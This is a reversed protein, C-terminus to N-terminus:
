FGKELKQRYIGARELPTELIEAESTLHAIRGLETNDGTSAVVATASGRTISTGHYLMNDRDSVATSAAIAETQKAVPMSEGTLVSENCLVRSAELLRLDAAVVDGAELVVIDGPVLGRAPISVLRGKRRVKVRAVNFAQLGELSRIARLETVFGIAANLFIVALVAASEVVHGFALALMSAVGLLLVIINTFQNVAIRLASRRPQRSLANVGHHRRRRRAEATRLGDLDTHLAALAQEPSLAHVEHVRHNM